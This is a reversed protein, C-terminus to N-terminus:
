QQQLIHCFFVPARWHVVRHSTHYGHCMNVSLYGMVYSLMDYIARVGGHDNDDGDLLPGRHLHLERQRYLLHHGGHDHGGRMLPLVRALYDYKLHSTQPIINTHYNHVISLINYLISLLVDASDLASSSM